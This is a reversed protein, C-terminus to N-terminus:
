EPHEISTSRFITTATAEVHNIDTHHTDTDFTKGSKANNYFRDTFMSFVEMIDTMMDDNGRAFNPSQVCELKAGFKEFLWQFFDFGFRTFRDPQSVIVHKVEGKLLRELITKFGCRNYNLGSGIDTVLMYEPYLDQLHKTQRKLEDYQRKSSVRAYVINVSWDTINSALQQSENEIDEETPISYRYHGGPTKIVEVKGERALKRLNSISMGYYKSAEEAKVIIPM